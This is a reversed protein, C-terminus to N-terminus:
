LMIVAIFVGSIVGIKKSFKAKNILEDSIKERYVSLKSRAFELEKIQEEASLRGLILFAEKLIGCSTKDYCFGSELAKKDINNFDFESLIGILKKTNDDSFSYLYDFIDPVSMRENQICIIINKILNETRWIGKLMEIYKQSIMCGSISCALAIM